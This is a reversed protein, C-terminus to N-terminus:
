WQSPEGAMFTFLHKPLLQEVKLAEEPVRKHLVKLVAHCAAEADDNWKVNNQGGAREVALRLFEERSKVKLPVRAPQWGEYYAGRLVLPLQAALHVAEPVPLRDRTAAMVGRFMSYALHLDMGERRQQLEQPTLRGLHSDRSGVLESEFENYIDKLWSDVKQLNAHFLHETTNAFTAGHQKYKDMKKDLQTEAAPQQQPQAQQMTPATSTSSFRLPHKALPLFFSATTHTRTLLANPHQRRVIHHM